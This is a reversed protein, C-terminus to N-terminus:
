RSSQDNGNYVTEDYAGQGDEYGEEYEAERYGEEYGEEYVEDDGLTDRPDPIGKVAYYTELPTRRLLNFVTLAAIVIILGGVGMATKFLWAGSAVMVVIVIVSIIIAPLFRQRQSRNERMRWISTNALNKRTHIVGCALLWVIIGAPAGIFGNIWVLGDTGFMADLSFSAAVTLVVAIALWSFFYTRRSNVEHSDVFLYFRNMWEDFVSEPM